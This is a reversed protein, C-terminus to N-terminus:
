YVVVKERIGYGRLVILYIGEPLNSVDITEDEWVNGSFVLQGKISLIELTTEGKIGKIAIRNNAPNPYVRINSAVNSNIGVVEEVTIKLDMSNSTAMGDTVSVPVTLEGLFGTKPIVTDGSLTYNDGEHVILILVDNDADSATVDGMSLTVPTDKKTTINSVATLVPANNLGAILLAHATNGWLTDNEKVEGVKYFVIYEDGIETTDPLHVSIDRVIGSSISDVSIVLSEQLTEYDFDNLLLEEFLVSASVDKITDSFAFPANDLVQLAPYTSDTRIAWATDFSFGTFSSQQKMQVTTLGTVAQNNNDSGIGVTDQGSTETNYFGNIITAANNIGVFGGTNSSGSVEGVAYCNTIVSSSHNNGVLGGIRKAGHVKGTAYCNTISSSNSIGVLGGINDIGITETTAYCNTLSSSNLYGFLGGTHTDGDSGTVKGTAYCNRIESEEAGGGLAGVADRGILDCNMIALSDIVAGKVYSFLGANGLYPRNVYLNSISHGSGNFNGTFAQVPEWGILSKAKSFESGSFDLNNMLIYNSDPLYRVTNLEAISSIQFPNEGNGEGPPMVVISVLYKSSIQNNDTAVISFTYVGGAAPTWSIISDKIQMGKPADELSLRVTTGDMPVVHATDTYQIGIEAWTSIDQLILPANYVAQLRPFTIGNTITWTTDFSFGIFSSQQKMQDTVFGTDAQSKNDYGLANTQRSLETNYYSNIVFSGSNYGVLGGSYDNGTVKGTAYCNSVVSGPAEGSSNRGILGGVYANGTVEVNAYCNSLTSAHMSQGVLGGVSSVASVEGMAYCCSITSNRYNFGVICGVYSKGKVNCNIIGLSDINANMIRGFLGVCEEDPRNIYLNSIVYGAGNMRGKFPNDYSGIPEWGENSHKTDFETGSFDLNNMLIYHASLYNRSFDLEEISTIQYPDSVTGEGTFPVVEIIIFYKSIYNNADTALLTFTYEGLANPVWSIVSDQLQMGDPLNEGAFTIEGSDMPLAHITDKYQSNITASLSINHIFVPINHVAQLRPYTESESITWVTDFNFGSFSSQQRMQEITLGTVVQSNDDTGIGVNQGSTEINYYSNTIISSSNKGVLGGTYEEGSVKGTAYCNSLGSSSSYNFGVLGGTYKIGTVETTSYCNLLSSSYNYGVLGGTAWAGNVKGSSYCNSLSSSYTHFGVLCSANNNGIINCNILGLSDIKAGSTKGFLGTYQAAPRNIYLNSIIHGAGNFSGSFTSIPNWGEASNNKDYVSGSFDLDNMLIYDHSTLFRTANLEEITSIQFPNEETGEGPPMVALTFHYESIVQGALKAFASISFRGMSDPTWTLISDQVDAGEPINEFTLVVPNGDGHMVEITDIYQTNNTVSYPFSHLIYPMDHVGLLQPFSEGEVITWVTDFNFGAYSGQHKMQAISLGTGKGAKGSTEKNYYGNSVTSYLNGGVLGGTASKGVAFSNRITAYHNNGVLGGSSMGSVMGTAYCNEITSSISYGALGGNGAYGTIRGTSYCSSITSASNYGVLGGNNYNYGSVRVTSYCCIVTSSNNRGILGGSAYGGHVKGTSYCNTITSSNNLGVLAGKNQSGTVDCNVIGLSDISANSIAGFLGQNNSSPRNIYLNSITHGKGNFTGAFTSIPDWGDTSNATDYPSGSFDLDNMLVFNSDLYNRVSDLQAITTIQWPNSVTGDGGSFPNARLVNFSVIIFTLVLAVFRLFRVGLWRKFLYNFSAQNKYGNRKIKYQVQKIMKKQNIEM